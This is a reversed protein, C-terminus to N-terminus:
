IILEETNEDVTAEDTLILTEDEVEGDVILILNEVMMM